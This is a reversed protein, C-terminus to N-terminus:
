LNLDLLVVSTLVWIEYELHEFRRSFDNALLIYLKGSSTSSGLVIEFVIWIM